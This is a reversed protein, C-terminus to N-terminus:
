AALVMVLVPEMGVPLRVKHWGRFATQAALQKSMLLGQQLLDWLQLKRLVRGHWVALCRCFAGFHLWLMTPHRRTWHCLCIVLVNACSHLKLTACLYQHDTVLKRWSLLV